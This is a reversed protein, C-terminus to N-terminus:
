RTKNIISYGKEQLELAIKGKGKETVRVIVINKDKISKCFLKFYGKNIYKQYPTNRNGPGNMLYKEKRLIQFLRNRGMINGKSDSLQVLKAFEGMSYTGASSYMFGNLANELYGVYQIEMELDYTLDDVEFELEDNRDQLEKTIEKQKELSASLENIQKGYGTILNGLEYPNSILKDWVTKAFYVGTRRIMPIIERAVKIQFNKGIETNSRMALYYWIDESIYEPLIDKINGQIERSWNKPAGPMNCLHFRVRDWRIIENGNRSKRVFGLGRAIDELNLYLVGNEGVYGRVNEVNMIENTIM